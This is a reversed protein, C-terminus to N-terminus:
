GRQFLDRLDLPRLNECRLELHSFFKCLIEPRSLFFFRLDESFHKEKGKRKKIIIQTLKAIFVKCSELSTYPDSLCRLICILHFTFHHMTCLSILFRSSSVFNSFARCFWVQKASLHRFSQYCTKSLRKRDKRQWHHSLSKSILDMRHHLNSYFQIIEIVKLNKESVENYCRMPINKFGEQEVSEMLRRNVAWFQDFKDISGIFLESSIWLIKTVM